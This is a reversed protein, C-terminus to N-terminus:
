LFIKVAIVIYHIYGDGHINIEPIPEQLLVCADVGNPVQYIPVYFYNDNRHKSTSTHRCVKSGGPEMFMYYNYARACIPRYIGIRFHGRPTSYFVLKLKKLMVNKKKKVGSYLVIGYNVWFIYNIIFLSSICSYNIAFSM